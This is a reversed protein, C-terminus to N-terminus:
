EAPCQLTVYEHHIKFPDWCERYFCFIRNDWLWIVTISFSLFTRPKTKISSYCPCFYFMRSKCSRWRNDGSWTCTVGTSDIKAFTTHLWFVSLWAKKKKKKIEELTYTLCSRPIKATMLNHLATVFNWLRVIVELDCLSEASPHIQTNKKKKKKKVM